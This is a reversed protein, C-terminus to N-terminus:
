KQELFLAMATLIAEKKPGGHAAFFREALAAEDPELYVTPLRPRGKRKESYKREARRASEPREPKNTIM